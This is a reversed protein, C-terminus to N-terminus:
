AAGGPAPPFALVDAVGRVGSAERLDLFDVPSRNSPGLPYSTPKM